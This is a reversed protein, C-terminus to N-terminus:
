RTVLPLFTHTPEIPEPYSIAVPTLPGILEGSAVVEVYAISITGPTTIRWGCKATTAYVGGHVFSVDIIIDGDIACDVLYISYINQENIESYLYVIEADTALAPLSTLLMLLLILLLTLTTKTKM